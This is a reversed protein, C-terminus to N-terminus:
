EGILVDGRIHQRGLFFADGDRRAGPEAPHAAHTKICDLPTPLQMLMSESAVMERKGKSISTVMRPSHASNLGQCTGIPCAVSGAKFAM